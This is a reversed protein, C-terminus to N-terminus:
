FEFDIVIIDILGIEKLYAVVAQHKPHPGYVELGNKDQFRVTLGIQFGQNRNSFDYGAQLSIIEPIEEKLGNLKRIAEDQQATSTDQGFKLIVIHEIM